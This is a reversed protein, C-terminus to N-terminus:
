FIYIAGHRGFICLRESSLALCLVILLLDLLSVLLFQESMGNHVM